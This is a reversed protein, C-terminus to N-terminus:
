LGVLRLERREGQRRPLIDIEEYRADGVDGIAIQHTPPDFSFRWPNRFGYAWIEDRGPRGVFPNDKPVTYAGSSPVPDIRLIKGLLLRKNQAM